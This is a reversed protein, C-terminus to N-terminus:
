GHHRGEARHLVWGALAGIGAGLVGGSTIILGLLAGGALFAAAKEAPSFGELGAHLSAGLQEVEGPKTGTEDRVNRAPKGIPYQSRHLYMHRAHAARAEALYNQQERSPAAAPVIDPSAATMDSAAAAEVNAVDLYADDVTSTDLGDNRLADQVSSNPLAFAFESPNPISM